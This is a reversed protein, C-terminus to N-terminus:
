TYAAPAAPQWHGHVDYPIRIPVYARALEQMSAADLILLYSQNKTGDLVPAMLVGDDEKTAGPRQVFIGESPYQNLAGWTLADLTHNQVDAGEGCMNVKTLHFDKM